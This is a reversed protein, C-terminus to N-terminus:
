GKPVFTQPNSTVAEEAEPFREHETEFMEVILSFWHVM